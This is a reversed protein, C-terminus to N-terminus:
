EFFRKYSELDWARMVEKLKPEKFTDSPLWQPEHGTLACRFHMLQEGQNKGARESVQLISLWTNYDASTAAGWWFDLGDFGEIAGLKKYIRPRKM